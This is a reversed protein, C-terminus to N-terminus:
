PGEGLAARSTAIAHDYDVQGRAELATDTTELVVAAAGLLQVGKELEGEAVCVDGLDALCVAGCWKDALEHWLGLSERLLSIARPNDGMQWVIYGMNNLAFAIAYKHGTQRAM